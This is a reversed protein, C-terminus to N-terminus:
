GVASAKKMEQGHGFRSFRVVNSDGRWSEIRPAAVALYATAVKAYRDVTSRSKWGGLDKLEDGDCSVVEAADRRSGGYGLAVLVDVVLQEFDALSVGRLVTSSSARRPSARM